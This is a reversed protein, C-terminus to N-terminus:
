PDRAHAAVTRATLGLDSCQALADLLALLERGLASLDGRYTVLDLECLLATVAHVRRIPCEVAQRDFHKLLRHLKGHPCLNAPM